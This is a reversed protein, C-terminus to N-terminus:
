KPPTAQASIGAQRSVWGLLRGTFSLRHVSGGGGGGGGEPFIPSPAEERIKKSPLPPPPSKQVCAPSLRYNCTERSISNIFFYFISRSCYQLLFFLPM